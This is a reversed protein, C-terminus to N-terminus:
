NKSTTMNRIFAILVGLILGIILGLVVILKRKPKIKKEPIFAAQDLHAVNISKPDIKISEFYALTNEMERLGEIFPTDDTRNKLQEAERNYELLKLKEELGRLEQIFPDDNTRQKLSAIEAELAEYGRTYLEPSDDSVNTIIQSSAGSDSIKKLKYDIPDKLELSHAIENAETLITIRDLRKDKASNKLTNIQDTIKSRELSDLTELREVEDLRQMKTKNLLLQIELKLDNIRQNVKATINSILKLKTAQEAKNALQNVIEM